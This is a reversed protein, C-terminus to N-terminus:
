INLEAKTALCIENKPGDARSQARVIPTQHGFRIFSPQPGSSALICIKDETSPMCHSSMHGPVALIKLQHSSYLLEEELHKRRAKVQPQDVELADACILAAVCVCHCSIPNEGEACVAATTCPEYNGSGDNVIKHCMLRTHGEYDIWYASNFSENILSVVLMLKRRIATKKLKLLFDLVAIKKVSTKSRGDPAWYPELLNFGEPLVILSETAGGGFENLADDFAGLPDKYSDVSHFFGVRQLM